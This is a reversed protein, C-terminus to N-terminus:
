LHLFWVLILILSLIIMLWKIWRGIKKSEGREYERITDENHLVKPLHNWHM